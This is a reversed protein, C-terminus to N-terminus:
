GYMAECLQETLKSENDHIIVCQKYLDQGLHLYRVNEPNLAYQEYGFVTKLIRLYYCRVAFQIDYVNLKEYKEYCKLYEAFERMDPFGDEFGRRIYLFSRFLEYIVPMHKVSTFDLLGSIFEGEFLIQYSSYDGHSNKWTILEFGEWKEEKLEYLFQIKTQLERKVPDNKLVSSIEEHEQMSKDVAKDSRDFAAKRKLQIPFGELSRVLRGYLEACQLSQTHTGSHFSQRCGAIWPYVTFYHREFGIIKRGSVDPLHKPVAYGKVSLFACVEIELEITELATGAPYEKLAFIGRNTELYYVNSSTDPLIQCKFVQMNFHRWLVKGIDLQKMYVNDTKM